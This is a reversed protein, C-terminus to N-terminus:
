PKSGKSPATHTCPKIMDTVDGSHDAIYALAAQEDQEIATEVARKAVDLLRGSEKKLAFSQRVLGAIKNQISEDVVPVYFCAIDNPYLEIQGSSGKFYKDVQYKGALSNLYVSLFIPNVKETRLITVHNDPLAEQEHLYPASRGITGVGTGNILVDGKQIVLADKKDPVIALRNDSLLVEGERVHRSNIVPLGEDAYDPQTGRQNVTLLSGLSVLEHTDALKAELEDFRPQYYEADLRGSVRFSDQFSKVNTNDVSPSFDTLSLADLLLTEAQSYTAISEDFKAQSGRVIAEISSQFYTSPLGVSIDQFEVLKIEPRTAKIGRRRLQSFGYISNFFTSIYYPNIGSCLRLVGVHAITNAGIFEDTVVASKGFYIGTKTVLVDGKGLQSRKLTRAHQESIQRCCEADIWGNKVAESLIFMVGDDIYDASGHDGDTILSCCDSLPKIVVKSNLLKNFPFLFAPSYYEAGFTLENELDSLLIESVELGEL